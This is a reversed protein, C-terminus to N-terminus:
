GISWRGELKMRRKELQQKLKEGGVETTQVDFMLDELGEFAKWTALQAIEHTLGDIEDGFVRHHHILVDSLPHDGPRGNPV